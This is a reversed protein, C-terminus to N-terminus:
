SGRTFNFNKPNGDIIIKRHGKENARETFIRINLKMALMLFQQVVSTVKVRNNGKKISALNSCHKAQLFRFFTHTSEQYHLVVGCSQSLLLFLLGIRSSEQLLQM